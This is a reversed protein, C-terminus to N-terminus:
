HAEGQRQTTTVDLTKRVGSKGRLMSRLGSRRWEDQEFGAWQGRVDAAADMRAQMAIYMM